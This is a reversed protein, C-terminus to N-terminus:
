LFHLTKYQLKLIEVHHQQNGAQEMNDINNNRSWIPIQLLVSYEIFSHKM